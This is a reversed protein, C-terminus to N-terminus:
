SERTRDRERQRECVEKEQEERKEKGSERWLFCVSTSGGSHHGSDHVASVAGRRGRGPEWPM